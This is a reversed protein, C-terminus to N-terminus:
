VQHVLAAVLLRLVRLTQVVVLVVVVMNDEPL